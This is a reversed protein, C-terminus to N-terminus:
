VNYKKTAMCCLWRATTKGINRATHVSEGPIFVEIGIDPHNVEGNIIFELNGELAIVLEDTDHILDM